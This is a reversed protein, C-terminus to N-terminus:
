AGVVSICGGGVVSLFRSLFVAAATTVLMLFVSLEFLRQRRSALMSFRPFIVWPFVVVVAAPVLM